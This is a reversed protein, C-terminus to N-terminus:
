KEDINMWTANEALQKTALIHYPKIAFNVLLYQSAFETLANIRLREFLAVQSM